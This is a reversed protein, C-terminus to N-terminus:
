GLWDNHRIKSIVRRGGHREIEGLMENHWEDETQIISGRSRIAQEKLNFIQYQVAELEKLLKNWKSLLEKLEQQTDMM